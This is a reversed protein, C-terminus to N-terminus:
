EKLLQNIFNKFEEKFNEYYVGTGAGTFGTHIRRVKGQKDIFITTPFALVANLAPLTNSASQKDSIGAVLLEYTIQYRNKLKELRAKAQEFSPSREYALGIIEIGKKYHKRYYPSLFATEDMCNPCWSGLIQIVVVKGKYRDDQLSISKNELNPFAFTLKDYGDKLYTLSNADPLAAKENIFATFTEYGGKGAWFSGALKNQADITAEFLFAHNGDFTSLEFTNGIAIGELYRYDGTTTLFSGTLQNNKQQFVGVAPYTSGDSNKFIAEWTGTFNITPLTNKYVKFRAVDGLTATFPIIYPQKTDLKIWYGKWIKNNDLKGKLIADFIHLVVTITDGIKLFEDLRIKEEGNRIYAVQRGKEISTELSFPIEKNQLTLAVHWTGKPLYEQAQLYPCFVIFLCIFFLKCM